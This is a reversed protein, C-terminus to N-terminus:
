RTIFSALHATNGRPIERGQRKSNGTRQRDTEARERGHLRRRRRAIRRARRGSADVRARARGSDGRELALELVLLLHDVREEDGEGLVLEVVGDPLLEVVGRDAVIANRLQGESVLRDRLAPLQLREQRRHLRLQIEPGGREETLDEAVLEAGGRVELLREGRPGRMRARELADVRLERADVVVLLEGVEADVGGLVAGLRLLRHEELARGDEVLAGIELVLRDLRVLVEDLDIGGVLRQAVREFSAVHLCIAIAVDRPHQLLREHGIRRGLGLVGRADAALEDLHERVLELLRLARHGV